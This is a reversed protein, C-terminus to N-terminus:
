SSEPFRAGLHCLIENQDCGTDSAVPRAISFLTEDQRAEPGALALAEGPTLLRGAHLAAEACRMASEVARLTAADLPRLSCRHGTFDRHPHHRSHLEM